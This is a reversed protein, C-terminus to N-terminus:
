DNLEKVCIIGSAYQPFYYVFPALLLAIIRVLTIKIINGERAPGGKKWLGEIGIGNVKYGLDELEGVGWGSRHEQFPNQRVYFKDQELYGRPTGIVVRREALKEMNKLLKM